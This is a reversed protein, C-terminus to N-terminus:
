LSCVKMFGPVEFMSEKHSADDDADNFTAALSDLINGLYRPIYVQAIAALLLFIFAFGILHIDSYCMSLLDKWSAKYNADAGIDSEGVRNIDDDVSSGQEEDQRDPEGNQEALLPVSLTSSITRLFAPPEGQHDKGYQAVLTCMSDLYSAEIVSLVATLLISLWFLPHFPEADYLVGIEINLRALSKVVCLGQAVLCLLEGAFTPRSTYRKFWPWFAEELAEQELEERSKRHGNPHHLDFPYEPPVDAKIYSVLLGFLSLIVRLAVLISLDVLSGYLTYHSTEGEAHRVRRFFPSLLFISSILDFTLVGLFLGLKWFGKKETEGQSRTQHEGNM